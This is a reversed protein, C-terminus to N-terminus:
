IPLQSIFSTNNKWYYYAIIETFSTDKDYQVISIENMQELSLTSKKTYYNTPIIKERDNVIERLIFRWKAADCKLCLKYTDDNEFVSIYTRTKNEQLTIYIYDGASTHYGLTHQMADILNSFIKQLKNSQQWDKYKITLPMPNKLPSLVCLIRTLQHEGYQYCSFSTTTSSDNLLKKPLFMRVGSANNACVIKLDNIIELPLCYESIIKQLNNKTVIVDDVLQYLKDSVALFTLENDNISVKYVNDIFSDKKATFYSEAPDAITFIGIGNTSPALTVTQLDEISVFPTSFHATLIVLPIIFEFLNM